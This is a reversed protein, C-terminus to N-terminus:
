PYPRYLEPFLTGAELAQAPPYVRGLKQIPIYARALEM